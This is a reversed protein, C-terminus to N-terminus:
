PLLRKLEEVWNVIVNVHTPKADPDAEVMAFTGDPFVDFQPSGTEFPGSFLFEPTGADFITGRATVSVSMIRTGDIYFLKRGDRSWVPNGGGSTSVLWKGQEVNPFPRVYVESQGSEDSSYALWRDDPSLRANIEHAGTTILPRPRPDGSTPLMWIDSRTRAHDDCFVLARGDKTWSMPYQTGDRALLRQAEGSGDLPRWYIDHRSFYAVSDGDRTWV